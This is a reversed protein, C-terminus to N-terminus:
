NMRKIQGTPTVWIPQKLGMTQWVTHGDGWIETLICTEFNNEELIRAARSANQFVEGRPLVLRTIQSALMGILEDVTLGAGYDRSM